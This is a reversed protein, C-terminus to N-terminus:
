RNRHFMLLFAQMLVIISIWITRGGLYPIIVSCSIVGSVFVVIVGGYRLTRFLERRERTTIYLYLVEMARRLNGTCFVSAYADGRIKKFTEFQLASVFGVLSNAYIDARGVPIFGVGILLIVEFVLVRQRWHIRSETFRDHFFVATLIGMAFACIPIFYEWAGKLNHQFLNLGLLIINGTESNAFVGGRVLYTYGDMVGGAFGLLLAVRYSESMQVKHDSSLRESKKNM